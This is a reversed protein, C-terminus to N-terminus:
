RGSVTREVSRRVAPSSSRTRVISRSEISQSMARAASGAGAACAAPRPAEPMVTREHRGIGNAFDEAHRGRPVEDCEHRDAIRVFLGRRGPLFLTSCTVCHILLPHAAGLDKGPQPRHDGVAEGDPFGLDRTLRPEDVVEARVRQIEDIENAISRPTLNRSDSKFKRVRSSKLEGVTIFSPKRVGSVIAAM